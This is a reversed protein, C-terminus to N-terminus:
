REIKSFILSQQKINESLVTLVYTGAHLFSLDDVSVVQVNRDVQQQQSYILRGDIHRIEVMILEEEFSGLAIQASEAVPNPYISIRAEVVKVVRVESLSSQKNYDTQKLRYYNIGPM